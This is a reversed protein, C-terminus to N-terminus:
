QKHVTATCVRVHHLALCAAGGHTLERPTANDSCNATCGRQVSYLVHLAQFRQRWSKLRLASTNMSFNGKRGETGTRWAWSQWGSDLQTGMLLSLCHTAM